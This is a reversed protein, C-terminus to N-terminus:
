TTQLGHASGATRKIAALVMPDNTLDTTVPQNTAPGPQTGPAFQVQIGGGWKLVGVALLAVAEFTGTANEYPRALWTRVRNGGGGRGALAVEM